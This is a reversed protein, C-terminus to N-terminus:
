TKLLATASGAFTIAALEAREAELCQSAGADSNLSTASNPEKGSQTTELAFDADEIGGRAASLNTSINTM